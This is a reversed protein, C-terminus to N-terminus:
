NQKFKLLHLTKAANQLTDNAGALSLVYFVRSLLIIAIKNLRGANVVGYQLLCAVYSIMALSIWNLFLLELLFDM